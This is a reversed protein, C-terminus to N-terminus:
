NSTEMMPTRNKHPQIRVSKKVRERERQQPTKRPRHPCSVMGDEQRKARKPSEGISADVCFEQRKEVRLFSMLSTLIAKMSLKEQKLSNPV